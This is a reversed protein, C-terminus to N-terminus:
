PAPERPEARGIIRWGYAVARALRAGDGPRDDVLFRVYQEMGRPRVVFADPGVPRASLRVGDATILLVGRDAEVRLVEGEGSRYEGLYVALREPPCVYEPYDIPPVEPAMGSLTNLLGHAIARVPADALNALVGVALGRSPVLAVHASISRRGGSHEILPGGSYGPLVSLGYGYGQNPGVTVHSQMMAAATRESLIRRGGALGGTRYLELYRLLDTATSCIGGAPHWVESYWWTRAPAITRRGSVNTAIYPTAVGGPGGSPTAGTPPPGFATMTLGAPEFITETVYRTYPRGSVRAIIEGLLAYGDNCYSFCDGPPGLPTWESEALYTMLDSATEFPPRAHVDVPPLTGDPDERASAGFAYWRSPLPPWGPTHTLFHRIRIASADGRGKPLRLEPLYEVVPDDVTVRGLDALSMIAAATFSKTVSAVGFVTDAGAAAGTRRDAAGFGRAYVPTGNRWAAVAAGPVEDRNLLREAYSEFARV